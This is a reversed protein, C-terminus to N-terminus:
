PTTNSMQFVYPLDPFQAFIIVSNLIYIYELFLSSFSNRHTGEDMRLLTYGHSHFMLDEKELTRSFSDSPQIEGRQM